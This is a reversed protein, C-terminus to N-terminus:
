HMKSGFNKNEDEKSFLICAMLWTKYETSCDDFM